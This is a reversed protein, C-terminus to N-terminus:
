REIMHQEQLRQLGEKIMRALGTGVGDVEDLDDLTANLINPLKEFHEVVKNIVAPRLKPIRHLVRFGRPVLHEELINGHNSFGLCKLIRNSDIYESESSKDSPKKPTSFMDKLELEQKNTRQYDRLIRRAEDEVNKMLDDLQMQVLRGETGLEIIYSEIEDRIRLVMDFKQIVHVIETMTVMDEFELTGLESLQQSLVRKYRELTRIAQTAKTLIVGIEKLEYHTTGKYLTIINRRQSVSIVLKGTQRAVRDATRHRIGTEESVISNDPLLQTNAYLIRTADDSLIIAGDMKSLEYLHSPTCECDIAFGGDVIDMLDSSVGIVILGGTKARLVNELGERLNTGPAVTKIMQLVQKLPEDRM